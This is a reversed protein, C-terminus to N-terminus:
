PETQRACIHSAPHAEVLHFRFQAGSQSTSQTTVGKGMGMWSAGVASLDFWRAFRLSDALESRVYLKYESLRVGQQRATQTRSWPPPPEFGREGVMTKLRKDRWSGRPVGSCECSGRM